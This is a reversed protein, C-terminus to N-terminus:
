GHATSYVHTLWKHWLFPAIELHNLRGGGAPRLEVSNKIITDYLHFEDRQSSYRRTWRRWSSALSKPGDLAGGSGARQVRASNDCRSL